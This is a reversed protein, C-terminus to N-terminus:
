LEGPGDPIEVDPIPEAKDGDKIQRVQEVMPIGVETIWKSFGHMGKLAEDIEVTGFMFEMSKMWDMVAMRFHMIIPAIQQLEEPNRGLMFVIACEDGCEPCTYGNTKTSKMMEASCKPCPPSPMIERPDPM